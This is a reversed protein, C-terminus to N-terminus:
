AVEQCYWRWWKVDEYITRRSVGLLKAMAAQPVRRAM